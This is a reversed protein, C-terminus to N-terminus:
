PVGIEAFADHDLARQQLQAQEILIPPHEAWVRALRHRQQRSLHATVRTVYTVHTVGAPPALRLQRPLHPSYSSVPDISYSRQPSHPAPEAAQTTSPQNRNTAGRAHSTTQSPRESQRTTNRPAASLCAGHIPGAQNARSQETSQYRKVQSKWSKWSGNAAREGCTIRSSPPSMLSARRM